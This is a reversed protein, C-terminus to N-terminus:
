WDEIRALLGDPDREFRELCNPCQCFHVTRGQHETAVTMAMPKEGLCSPCVVVDAIRALYRDPDTRFVDACGECCFFYLTGEHAAHFAQERSLGLRVLSCGCTPCVVSRVVEATAM